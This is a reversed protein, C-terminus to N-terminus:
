DWRGEESLSRCSRVNISPRFQSLCFPSRVASRTSVDPNYAALQDHIQRQRCHREQQWVDASKCCNKKVPFIVTCDDVCRSWHDFLFVIRQLFFNNKCDIMCYDDDKLKIYSSDGLAKKCEGACRLISIIHARQIRGYKYFSKMWNM